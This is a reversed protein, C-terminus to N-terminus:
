IVLLKKTKEKPFLTLAMLPYILCSSLGTYIVYPLIDIYILNLSIISNYYFCEATGIALASILILILCRIYKPVFRLINSFGYAAISAAGVILLVTSFSKGSCSGAAIGCAILVYSVDIFNRERFAFIISFVLILEPMADLVSIVDGFVTQVIYMLVIWLVIKIIRM